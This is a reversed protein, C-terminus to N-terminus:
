RLPVVRVQQPEGLFRSMEESRAELTVTYVGPEVLPGQRRRRQEQGEEPEPPRARLDWVARHL